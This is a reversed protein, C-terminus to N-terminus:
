TGNDGPLVSQRQMDPSASAIHMCLCSGEGAGYRHHRSKGLNGKWLTQKGVMSAKSKTQLFKAHKRSVAQAMIRLTPKGEKWGFILFKVTQATDSPFCVVPLLLSVTRFCPPRAPPGGRIPPLIHLCTRDGSPGM